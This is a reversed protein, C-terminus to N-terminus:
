SASEQRIRAMVRAVIGETDPSVRPGYVAEAFNAREPTINSAMKEAMSPEPDFVVFACLCCVRRGDHDALVASKRCNPCVM